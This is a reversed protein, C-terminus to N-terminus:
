GVAGGDDEDESPPQETPAMEDGGSDDTAPPQVSGGGAGSDEPQGLLRGAGAEGDYPPCSASIVLRDGPYIRNPDTLDNTEAICSPAVNYAAAILDLVDGVGVIYANGSAQVSGGGGQGPQDTMVLVLGDYPPCNAPVVLEDGPRLTNPNALGSAEAICAVSKDFGAAIVDLVDGYEVTYSTDQAAVPFVVVVVILVVLVIWIRRLM